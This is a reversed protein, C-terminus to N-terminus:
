TTDGGLRRNLKRVLFMSLASAAIASAMAVADLAVTRLVHQGVPTYVVLLQLAAAGLLSWIMLKSPRRLPGAGARVSLAHLLQSFVLTSFVMTRAAVHDLGLWFSGVVMALVAAGALIAGQGLLLGINRGSLVDRGQGPRDRMVDRTPLDMGLSIAPMADSM